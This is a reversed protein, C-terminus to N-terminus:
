SGAENSNCNDVVASSDLDFIRLATAADEAMALRGATDIRTDQHPAESSGGSGGGCAALALVFSLALGGQLSSHKM